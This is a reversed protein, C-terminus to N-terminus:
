IIEPPKKETNTLKERAVAREVDPLRQEIIEQKRAQVVFCTQAFAIQPTVADLIMPM